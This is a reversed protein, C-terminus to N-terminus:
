GLRLVAGLRRRRALVTETAAAVLILLVVGGVLALTLAYDTRLAPQTAGGTFQRLNLTPAMLRPEVVGVLTGGVAAAAALPLMQLFHLAGAAKGGLGLTRLFSTTRSREHSTLILELAVALLGSLAALVSATAYVNELGRTLGDDRLASLTGSRTRVTALPGLARAAASRLAATSTGPGDGQLLLVTTGSSQQPMLHDASVATILLPTGPALQATIPGLLPDRLDAASLTGVPDLALQVPPRGHDEVTSTFGGTRERARLAPSVVSPLPVGAGATTGSPGTLASRLTRALPSHPALAALQRPEVTIVAVSPIEAGDAQGVLDLAHLHQLATRIGSTGTLADPAPATDGATTASADAGTSWAAGAALGDGITRQVLGGFVATGLTLVLVFLALGTAPADHAARAAGIFGVTGKGRRARLLLLRLALPYLRLLILVTALALLAPVAGLVWDPGQSRLAAVGAAAALLVTVEVVVRRRGAVPRRTRRRRATRRPRPPERVALWTLLSVTLAATAALVAASLPRPTGSVGTPALLRGGAWGLLAAIVVVPWAVASRLLVLRATSAGRARQLRLHAKRRRLLLRVAVATTALAVAALADVAFTALGRAQHDQATFTGVLPTLADTVTLPGTHQSGVACSEGGTYADTGRCLARDLDTGYRSLPGSLARARDLASQRLDARLQWTVSPGPVGAAALRDAADTGVLGSVALVTGGAHQAPHRSPQVLSPRNGWFDDAGAATRFIGSVVLRADPSRQLAPVRAFEVGLRSGARVGLAQATAQSLGIQPAAGIPTRDAPAHGSVYRLHARADPLHSIALTTSSGTEGPPLPSTLTAPNYDYGGSGAFSLHRAASGSLRHSLARGDGLLTAMDLAPPGSNFVEPVTSLTILPAGAQAAAVRQRLARDEQRGALSPAWACMGALVLVLVALCALLPLDGRAEKRVLRLTM